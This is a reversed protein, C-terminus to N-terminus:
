RDQSFNENRFSSSSVSFVLSVSFAFSASFSGGGVGERKKPLYNAAEAPFFGLKGHFNLDNAAKEQHLPLSFDLSTALGATEDAAVLCATTTVALAPAGDDAAVLCATTAAALAPAGDGAAVLGAPLPDEQRSQIQLVLTDYCESSRSIVPVLVM